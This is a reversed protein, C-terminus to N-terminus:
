KIIFNFKEWFAPDYEVENKFDFLSTEMVDLSDTRTNFFQYEETQVSQKSKVEGNKPIEQVEYDNIVRGYDTKYNGNKDKSYHQVRKINILRRESGGWGRKTRKNTFTYDSQTEVNYKLIAFDDKNIFLQGKTYEISSHLDNCSFSIIYVDEGNLQAIAELSYDYDKIRKSNLQKESDLLLDHSWFTFFSGFTHNKSWSGVVDRHQVVEAFRVNGNRRWHRQKYGDSDYFKLISESQLWTEGEPSSLTNRYFVDANHAKQIYNQPIRRIVAEMIEKASIKRAKIEVEALGYQVPQMFIRSVGGLNREVKLEITKYGIASITASGVANLKIEFLGDDNSIVGGGTPFLVSAYPITQKTTADILEFLQVEGQFSHSSRVSLTIPEVLTLLAIMLIQLYTM